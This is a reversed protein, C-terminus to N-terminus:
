QWLLATYCVVESSVPTLSYYSIGNPKQNAPAAKNAARIIKSLSVWLDTPWSIWTPLMPIARNWMDKIKWSSTPKWLPLLSMPSWAWGCVYVKRAEIQMEGALRGNTLWAVHIFGENTTKGMLWKLTSTGWSETMWRTKSQRESQM